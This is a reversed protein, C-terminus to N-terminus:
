HSQLESTHEESRFGCAQLLARMHEPVPATAEIAPKNNSLPLAIHRAHLHLPLVSDRGASGYIPDGVIAWGMAACHVRLQHTRGTLPVLAMFSVLKGEEDRHSGLLRWRTQSPLGKPDVKMWWGRGPDLKGLPLDILGESADPQGESRFLM